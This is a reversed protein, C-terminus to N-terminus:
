GAEKELLNQLQKRARRILTGVTSVNSDLIAAIEEYSKEEYYYLVLADRYRPKIRGLARNIVDRDDQRAQVDEPTEGEPAAIEVGESHDIGVERGRSQSRLHNAAENHAIRYLWPSFPRSRDFSALNQYAKLFVTQTLDQAADPNRNLLRYLYGFISQQYHEMLPRFDDRNGGLISGILDSDTKKRSEEASLAGTM